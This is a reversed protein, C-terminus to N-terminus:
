YPKISSGIDINNINDIENINDINNIYFYNLSCNYILDKFTRKPDLYTLLAKITHSHAVIIIKKDNTNIINLIGNLVRKQIEYNKEINPFDNNLIKKFVEDCVPLGEADGFDREIFNDDKIIPINLGLEQKIINATEFARSLPSSYIIDWNPDNRKLYEGACKAQLRGEDNLPFDIRGQIKKLQNTNTQGHRIFCITINM